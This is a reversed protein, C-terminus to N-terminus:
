DSTSEKPVYMTKQSLDYGLARLKEAADRAGFGIETRWRRGGLAELWKTQSPRVDSPKGGVRKMELATGCCEPHNPPPDFILLDPVGAETGSAKSMRAARQNAVELGNPVACFLIGAARLKRVLTIQESLESPVAHKKRPTRTAMPPTIKQTEPSVIPFAISERDVGKTVQNAMGFPMRQPSDNKPPTRAYFLRRIAVTSAENRTWFIRAGTNEHTM